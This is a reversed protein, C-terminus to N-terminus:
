KGSWETKQNTQLIEVWINGPAFKIEAGSNDLFYLKSAESDKKWVGETKGGDFYFEAKGQGELKVDNYQGEIQKTEAYMVAINKAAAQKSNNKDIEKEGGRSRLYSNQAANYQYEVRFEGPFGVILRAGDSETRPKAEEAKQRPYGEFKNELRYGLKESVSVLLDGSTFGNHPAPIGAKRYFVNYPNRLADLNDIVGTKLKDLAFHSGGWHAFIADVGKALPIFDHRASRVSGIEEPFSCRYVAMLRTIGDTIVPMEFIMDASAIGSLPKTEKDTALMVAIARQKENACSQASVSNSDNGLGNEPAAGTPNNVEFNNARLFSKYGLGAVVLLVVAALIIKTKNKKFITKMIQNNELAKIRV